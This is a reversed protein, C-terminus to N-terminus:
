PRGNVNVGTLGFFPTIRSDVSKFMMNEAFKIQIQIHRTNHNITTTILSADAELIFSVTDSSVLIWESKAFIPCFPLFLVMYTIGDSRLPSYDVISQAMLVVNETCSPSCEKELAEKYM